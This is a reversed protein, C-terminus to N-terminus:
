QELKYFSSPPLLSYINDHIVSVLLRAFFVASPNDVEIQTRVISSALLHLTSEWKEIHDRGSETRLLWGGEGGLMLVIRPGLSWHPGDATLNTAVCSYEHCFHHQAYKGMLLPMVVIGSMTKGVGIHAPAQPSISAPRRRGCAAGLSAGSIACLWRGTSM